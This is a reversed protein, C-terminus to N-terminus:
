VRPPDTERDFTRHTGLLAVFAKSLAGDVDNGYLVGPDDGGSPLEDPIGAKDLVDAGAGVVLMPKCHRYQDKLFELM